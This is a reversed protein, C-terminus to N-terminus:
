PAAPPPALGLKRVLAGFARKEQPSDPLFGARIVVELTARAPATEGARDYIQALHFQMIREADGSEDEGGNRAAMFRGSLLAKFADALTQKAEDTRDLAAQVCALTDRAAVNLPFTRWDSREVAKRALPLAEEARGALYLEWARENLTLLTLSCALFIRSLEM